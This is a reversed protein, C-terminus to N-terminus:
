CFRLVPIARSSLSYLGSYGNVRLYLRTYGIVDPVPVVTIGQPAALPAAGARIEYTVDVSDGGYYVGASDPTFTAEGRIQGSTVGQLYSTWRLLEGSYDFHYTLESTRDDCIVFELDGDGDADARYSTLYYANSLSFGPPYVGTIIIECAALLPLLVAFAFLRAPGIM